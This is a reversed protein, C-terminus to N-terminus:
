IDGLTPLRKLVAVMNKRVQLPVVTEGVSGLAINILIKLVRETTVDPDHLKLVSIFAQESLLYDIELKTFMKFVIDATDM